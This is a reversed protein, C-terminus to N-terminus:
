YSTLFWYLWLGAVVIVILVIFGLIIWLNRSSASAAKHAAETVPQIVAEVGLRTEVPKLLDRALKNRPNIALAKQFCELKRQDDDASAGLWLWATENRPDAAVVAELIPVGEIKNGGEILAVGQELKARIAAKDLPKESTATPSSDLNSDTADAPGSSDISELEPELSIPEAQWDETEAQVEDKSMVFASPRYSANDMLAAELSTVAPPNDAEPELATFTDEPEALTDFYNGAPESMKAPPPVARPPPPPEPKPPPPAPPPELEALRQRAQANQPNILLAQQLCYKKRELPDVCQELLVWAQEERPNAKLAQALLAQAQSKQGAHLAAQAQDLLPSM